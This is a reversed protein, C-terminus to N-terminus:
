ERHKEKEETYEEFWKQVKERSFKVHKIDGCKSCKHIEYLDLVLDDFFDIYDEQYKYDHHCFM